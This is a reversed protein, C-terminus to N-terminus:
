RHTYDYILQEEDKHAEYDVDIDQFESCDEKLHKTIDKNRFAQHQRSEFDKFEQLREREFDKADKVIVM